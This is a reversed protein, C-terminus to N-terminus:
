DDNNGEDKWRELASKAAEYSFGKGLLYRFAKQYTEVCEPKGRVYKVFLAFAGDNEPFDSLARAIEEEGIGKQELEKRVLLASKKCKHSDAYVKAYEEDDLFGYETLKEVAAAALQETYGKKVLYDYVTKSPKLATGLYAIAKNYARSEEAERQIDTLREETIEMGTKLRYEAATVLDLGCFFRGDLYVNVRAKDKVQPSIETIKGM